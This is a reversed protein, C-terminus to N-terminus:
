ELNLELALSAQRWDIKSEHMNNGVGNVTEVSYGLDLLQQKIEVKLIPVYVYGLGANDEMKKLINTREIDLETEKAEQYRDNLVYAYPFISENSM